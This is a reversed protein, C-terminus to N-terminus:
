VMKMIQNRMLSPVPIISSAFESQSIISRPHRPNIPSDVEPPNGPHYSM